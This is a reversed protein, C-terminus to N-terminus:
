RKGGKDAAAALLATLGGFIAVVAFIRNEPAVQTFAVGGVAFFFAGIGGMVGNGKFHAVAVLALLVVIGFIVYATILPENAFDPM